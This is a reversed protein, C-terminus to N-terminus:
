GPRGLLSLMETVRAFKRRPAGPSAAATEAAEIMKWDPYTVPMIGKKALLAEFAARGPKWGPALEKVIHEAVM